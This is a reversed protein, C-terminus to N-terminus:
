STHDSVPGSSVRRRFSLPPSISFSKAIDAAAEPWIWEMGVIMREREFKVFDFCAGAIFISKVASQILMPLALCMFFPPPSAFFFFFIIIHAPLESNRVFVPQPPTVLSKQFKILVPVGHHRFCVCLYFIRDIRREKADM